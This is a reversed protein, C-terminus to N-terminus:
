NAVKLGEINKKSSEGLATLGTLTNVAKKKHKPSLNMYRMTTQINKHRLQAAIEQPSCGAMAMHSATTHRLTHFTAAEINARKLAANFGVKVSQVRKRGVTFLYAEKNPIRDQPRLGKLLAVLDPNM